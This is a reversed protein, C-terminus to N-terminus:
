HIHRRSHSSPRSTKIAHAPTLTAPACTDVSLTSYHDVHVTFVAKQGNAGNGVAGQFGVCVNVKDHMALPLSSDLSGCLGDAIGCEAPTRCLQKSALAAGALFSVVLAAMAM